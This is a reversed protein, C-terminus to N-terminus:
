ALNKVFELWEKEMENISNGYAMEIKSVNTAIGEASNDWVLTPYLAFFNDPGLEDLLLAVWAAAQPYSVRPKSERTGIHHALLDRLPFLENKALLTRVQHKYDGNVADGVQTYGLANVLFVALG